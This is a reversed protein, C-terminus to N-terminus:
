SDVGTQESQESQESQRAAVLRDAIEPGVIEALEARTCDDLLALFPPSYEGSFGESYHLHPSVLVLLSDWHETLADYVADDDGYRGARQADRVEDSWALPAYKLWADYERASYAEEDLLPYNDLQSALQAVVPAVDGYVREHVCLVHGLVAVTEDDDPWELPGDRWPEPVDAAACVEASIAAYNTEDMAEHANDVYVIGYPSRAVAYWQRADDDGIRALVGSEAYGLTDLRPMDRYLIGCVLRPPYTSM